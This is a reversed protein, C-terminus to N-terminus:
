QGLITITTLIISETKKVDFVISKVGVKWQEWVYKVKIDHLLM